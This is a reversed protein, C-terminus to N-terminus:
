FGIKALLAIVEERWREPVDEIAAKGQRIRGAWFEAM